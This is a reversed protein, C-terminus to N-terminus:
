AKSPVKQALNLATTARPSNKEMAYSLFTPIETGGAPICGFPVGIATGRLWAPISRKWDRKNMHVRSLKNQVQAVRGEYLAAYLVEAVAFLGVAVLVIEIGDLLEPMGGTYSGQGSIQDLGVCGAALGVFLSTMGRLTSKGLVASVTTFALLMLMFYEPPGLKVAFEAVFPAFLTVIVTAITGAVFSGIAATALAAGARGSKAMKNGEMATVMSATEGLTNLLISTTSGGYMAGYYIGSFFIMSATVDVKATIPLLMAVTVAPGIGPLVGVATGLACGVLCWLLNASTIAASFGAMLANFIEM